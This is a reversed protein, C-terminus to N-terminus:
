LFVPCIRIENLYRGKYIISFDKSSVQKKCMQESHDRIASQFPKNLYQKTRYSKGQHESVRLALSRNTSGIYCNNCVACSYKYVIDSCWFPSTVDKHKFFNKIKFHNYFTTRLKIQPFHQNIIKTLTQNIEKCIKDGSFPFRIYVLEKEVTAIDPKKYFRKNLFSKIQKFFISEPFGNQM